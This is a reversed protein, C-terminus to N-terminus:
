LNLFYVPALSSLAAALQLVLVGIAPRPARPLWRLAFFALVPLQGIMCLQWIHAASGEDAERAAGFFALHGLLVALAVLSMAIPLYASPHRFINTFSRSSRDM